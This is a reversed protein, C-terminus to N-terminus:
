AEASSVNGQYWSEEWGWGVAFAANSIWVPMLCVCGTPTQSCEDGQFRTEVDGRDAKVEVAPTM